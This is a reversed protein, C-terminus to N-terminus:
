NLVVHLCVVMHLIVSTIFLANGNCFGAISVKMDMCRAM